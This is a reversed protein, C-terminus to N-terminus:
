LTNRGDGAAPGNSRLVFSRRGLINQRMWVLLAVGILGLAAASQGIDVPLRQAQVVVMSGQTEGLSRALEVLLVV